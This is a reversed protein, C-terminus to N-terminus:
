WKYDLFRVQANTDFVKLAAYVDVVLGTPTQEQDSLEQFLHPLPVRLGTFSFKYLLPNVPNVLRSSVILNMSKSSKGM